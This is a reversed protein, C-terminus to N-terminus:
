IMDNIKEMMLRGNIYTYIRNLYFYLNDHKLGGDETISYIVKNNRINGERISNIRIMIILKDDGSFSIIQKENWSVANGEHEIYKKCSMGYYKENKLLEYLKNFSNWAKLKYM